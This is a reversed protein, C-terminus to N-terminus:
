FVGLPNLYRGDRQVAFHLHPGSSHGTSGIEGLLQGRNIKQGVSVLIRSLHAYSTTYGSGHDIKVANGFGGLWWGARLVVGGDAAYVASGYGGAIDVGLHYRTFYQTLYRSDVPWGFTGTAGTLEGVQGRENYATLPVPSIKFRSALPPPSFSKPIAPIEAAPVVLKQGVKLDSNDFIYNFDAISQDPVKFKTAISSLTDGRKVVYIAGEVPPITLGQGPKIIDEDSLNNAYRIADTSVRFLEGISSVTDGSAVVYELPENRPRDGLDTVPTVYSKLVDSQSLYDNATFGEVRRILPTGSLFGGSVITVLALSIIGLHTFRKFLRGRSWILKATLFFKLSSFFTVLLEYSVILFRPFTLFLHRFLYVLVFSFFLYLEKVLLVVFNIIILFKRVLRTGRRRTPSLNALFGWPRRWFEQPNLM